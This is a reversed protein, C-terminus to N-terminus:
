NKNQREKGPATGAPSLLARLTTQRRPRAGGLGPGRTPEGLPQVCPRALKTNDQQTYHKYHDNWFDNWFYRSTYLWRGWGNARAFVLRTGHAASGAAARAQQLLGASPAARGARSQGVRLQSSARLVTHVHM